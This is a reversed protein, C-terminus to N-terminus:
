VPVLLAVLASPLFFLMWLLAPSHHQASAPSASLGVEREIQRMLQKDDESL